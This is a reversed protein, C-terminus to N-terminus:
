SIWAREESDTESLSVYIHEQMTTSLHLGVFDCHIPFLKHSRDVLVLCQIKDLTLALFPQLALFLTKGTNAVDDILILSANKFDLNQINPEINQQIPYSILQIKKNPDISSIRASLRQALEYGNHNLGVLLINSYHYNKELIEFALRELKARIQRSNLIQTQQTM